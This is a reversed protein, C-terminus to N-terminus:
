QIDFELNIRREFVAEFGRYPLPGANLVAAELSRKGAEDFGCPSIATASVVLGGPIQVVTVSCRSGPAMGDPRIWKELIPAQLAAVYRSKLAASPETEAGAPPAETAAGAPVMAALLLSASLPILAAHQWRPRLNM